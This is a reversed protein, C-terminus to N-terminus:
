IVDNPQWERAYPPEVAEEEREEEFAVYGAGSCWIVIPWVCHDPLHNFFTVLVSCYLYTECFVFYLKFLFYCTFCIYKQVVWRMHILIYIRIVLEFSIGQCGSLAINETVSTIHACVIITRRWVFHFFCVLMYNYYALLTPCWVFTGGRFPFFWLHIGFQLQCLTNLSELRIILGVLDDLSIPASM